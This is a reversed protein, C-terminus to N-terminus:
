NNMPVKFLEREANMNERISKAKDPQKKKMYANYLLIDFQDRIIDREKNNEIQLWAHQQYFLSLGSIVRSPNKASDAISNNIARMLMGAVNKTHHPLTDKSHNTNFNEIKEKLTIFTRETTFDYIKFKAPIPPRIRITIDDPSKPFSNEELRNVINKVAEVTLNNETLALSGRILINGFFGTFKNFHRLLMQRIFQAQNYCRQYDDGGLGTRSRLVQLTSKADRFGLFEIIGMVQSFGVEVYFHIKDLGAIEAVKNLYAQRGKAARFVTLKNQGTSDDFGADAPTDRPISTIEILGSDLLISVVHNADALNSRTGLRADFGTIAINIRRGTYIRKVVRGALNDISYDIKSNIPDSVRIVIINTDGKVTAADIMELRAKDMQKIQKISDAESSKHTNGDSVDKTFIHNNFIWIFILSLILLFLFGLGIRKNKTKKKTTSM